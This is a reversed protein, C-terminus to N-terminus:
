LILKRFAALQEESNQIAAVDRLKRKTLLETGLGHEADSLYNQIESHLNLLNMVQTVRARSIGAMGAIEVKTRGQEVLERYPATGQLQPYISNREDLKAMVYTYGMAPRLGTYCFALAFVLTM